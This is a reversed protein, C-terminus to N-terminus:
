EFRVRYFVHFVLFSVCISISVQQLSIGSIILYMGGRLNVVKEPM